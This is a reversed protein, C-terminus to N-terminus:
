DTDYNGVDSYNAVVVVYVRDLKTLKVRTLETLSAFM